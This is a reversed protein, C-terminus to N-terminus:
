VSGAMANRISTMWDDRKQIILRFRENKKTSIEIANPICMFTKASKMEVIQNLQVSMENKFSIDNIYGVFVLRRNTLYLAGALHEDTLLTAMGKKTIREDNYLEFVYM